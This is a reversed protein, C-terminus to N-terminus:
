RHESDIQELQQLEGTKQMEELVFQLAEAVAQKTFPFTVGVTAFLAPLSRTNGLALAAKYSHIASARDAEVLRGFQCAGVIAMPYTSPM